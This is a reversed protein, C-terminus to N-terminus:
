GKKSLRKRRIGFGILGALGFGLLLLTSPEPTIIHHANDGTTLKTLNAVHVDFEDYLELCDGPLIAEYVTGVPPPLCYLETEIRLPNNNHLTGMPTGVVEFFVDFFSEAKTNDALEAIAGFSQPLGKEVGANIQWGAANGVGTLQLFVIETDVVGLDADSRYVKTEDGPSLPSVFRADFDPNCDLNGDLLTDVGFQIISNPFYDYGETVTDVWDPGPGFKCDLADARESVFAMGVMMVCVLTLTLRVRLM